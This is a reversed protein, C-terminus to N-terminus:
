GTRFRNNCVMLCAIRLWSGTQILLAFGLCSRGSFLRLLHRWRATVNKHEYQIIQIAGLTKCCPRRIHFKLTDDLCLRSGSREVVSSTQEPDYCVCSVICTELLKTDPSYLIDDSGPFRERGAEKRGSKQWPPTIAPIGAVLGSSHFLLSSHFLSGFVTTYMHYNSISWETKLNSHHAGKIYLM